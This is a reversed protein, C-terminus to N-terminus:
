WLKTGSAMRTSYGSNGEFARVAKDGQKKAAGSTGAKLIHAFGLKPRDFATMAASAADMKKANSRFIREFNIAM